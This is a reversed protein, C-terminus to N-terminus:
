EDGEVPPSAATEPRKGGPVNPDTSVQVHAKDYVSLMELPSYRSTPMDRYMEAEKYDKRMPHGIWDDPMLLRRLDPHGEFVIGLLDYQEREHWDATKWISYVSAVHPRDRPLDAKVCITHKHRYSFLHYVSQLIKEKIYDVGTLCMLFDMDLDPETRLVKMTELLREPKVKFENDRNAFGKFTKDNGVIAPKYDYVADGVKSAVLDFIAKPDMMM